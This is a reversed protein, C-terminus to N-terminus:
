QNNAIVHKCADRYMSPLNDIGVELLYVITESISRHGKTQMICEIMRRLRKPIRVYTIIGEGM